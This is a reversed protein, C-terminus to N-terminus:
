LLLEKLCKINFPLSCCELFLKTILDGILLCKIIKYVHMSLYKLRVCLYLCCM